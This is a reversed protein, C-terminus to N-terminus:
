EYVFGGELSVKTTEITNSLCINDDHLLDNHVNSYHRVFFFLIVTQIHWKVLELYWSVVYRVTVCAGQLDLTYLLSTNPKFDTPHKTKLHGQGKHPSNDTIQNHLVSVPTM